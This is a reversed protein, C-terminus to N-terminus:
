KIIRPNLKELEDVFATTHTYAVHGQKYLENSRKVYMLMREVIRESNQLRRIEALLIPICALANRAHEKSLFCESAKKELTEIALLRAETLIASEKKKTKM